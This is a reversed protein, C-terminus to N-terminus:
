MLANQKQKYINISLFGCWLRMRSWVMRELVVELCHRGEAVEVRFKVLYWDNSEMEGIREFYM